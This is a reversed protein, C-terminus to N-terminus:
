RDATETDTEDAEEEKLHAFKIVKRLEMVESPTLTHSVCDGEDDASLIVGRGAIPQAYGPLIWFHKPEGLLAEDDVWIDDEKRKGGSLVVGARICDVTDCKIAKYLDDLCKSGKAIEVETVSEKEPDILLGKLKKEITETM